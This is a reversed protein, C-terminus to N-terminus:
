DELREISDIEEDMGITERAKEIAEEKSKAEVKIGHYKKIIIEYNPM